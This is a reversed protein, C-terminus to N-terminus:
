QGNHDKAVAGFAAILSALFLNKWGTGNIQVQAIAVLAGFLTTKWNKIMQRIRREQAM